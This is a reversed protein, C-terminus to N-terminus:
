LWTLLLASMHDQMCLKVDPDAIKYLSAERCDKRKDYIIQGIFYISLFTLVQM